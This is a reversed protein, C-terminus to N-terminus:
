ARGSAGSTPDIADRLGDGIFNISLVMVVLPTAGALFVWPFTTAMRAGEGILTGLSTEPPRIGLGFFSLSTEALVAAGIGLTADIILLSSINPIIHRFVIRPGSVGMYRAATVYERDRVSMTLSRVVRASLMWGFLALFVILLWVSSGGEVNRMILAVVLFNPMVLLLDITWLSLRDTWGRFYGAFSGVTAAIATAGLGVLAGILLSKGLGRVTLAFVDRGQQTTGFWHRTTPGLLYNGRDVETYGWRAIHPGAVALVVLLVYVVLGAVALRNRFFRRVILRRRGMRKPAVGAPAPAENRLHDALTPQSVVELSM